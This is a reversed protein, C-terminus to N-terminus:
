CYFHSIRVIQSSWFEGSCIEKELIFESHINLSIELEFEPNISLNSRLRYKRKGM